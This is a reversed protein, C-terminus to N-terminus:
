GAPDAEPVGGAGTVTRYTTGLLRAPLRFASILSVVLSSAYPISQILLVVVWALHDPGANQPLATYSVAWAALMLGIMMLTEERAAALAHWLGSTRGQKPTRFFPEHNTILGKVAARGITHTLALGAVAAALTQRLNAGVRVRYLHVLKALKFTFLSLPLVSYLVLPADVRGPAWVMAASWGLAALNFLLNCGDAVWPLWGAVFHYRQGSSLPGGETFLARAHAKLIQMAGYAWRFRQKKFDIFTDPMLGRGYSEPVYRADFGAEFIRLGLEADETICWEAWRCSDLQGRRVMTMTGHQIIANRENRTIMGIHFFGRYEAYCMAKFASEGADRYDQPAQVIAIRPDQFHPTLDRLWRADVLYDSDIVAVIQADPATHDLAFNLAGAKFGALPAVHFFRFRPGLRACHAQVPRWVSEDRTNNDIVLVEYDPYDLRALADLTEILMAPPENYAPVHISVKPPLASSKRIPVGLRRRYEVWHAEAWEHAEALMVLLVALMGLLLLVGSVVSTVTMYQQTFDYIVWVAITAAAYVVVALFSRGRNRLAASNLYLLGLMLLSVGISVAALIHWEPIRVIPATFAFKPRRNVDYVGWYSGVAGELYAKWPQDFAEMVYYTIQEKRARYLFRRLFLAENADSAVASERTRGRSPWGIEAIVIPKHPYAQQLRKLQALSYDVAHEVDVGEWYPLLHVGIFDVHAALEPYALWTHWTEATGVPQGIAERARDLYKELEGLSLDGRFLVENGVIVRVVNQHVSALDIATQLQQENLDRHSDLWAGLAVNMDHKEALEPIHALTKEVSYTRVANVKGELLTLDADIEADTPMEGHTPDEGARFPSFAFGQIRTPWPPEATPRNLLAWVAFTLTAFVAAILLSGITKM